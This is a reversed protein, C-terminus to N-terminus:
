SFEEAVTWGKSAAYNSIQTQVADSITEWLAVHIEPLGNSSCQLGNGSIDSRAACFNVIDGGFRFVKTTM